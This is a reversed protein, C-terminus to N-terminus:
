SSNCTFSVLKNGVCVKVQRNYVKAINEYSSYGYLVHIEIIEDDKVYIGIM